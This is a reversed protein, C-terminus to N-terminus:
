LLPRLQMKLPNETQNGQWCSVAKVTTIIGLSFTVNSTFILISYFSFFLPHETSKTVSVVSTYSNSIQNSSMGKDIEDVQSIVFWWLPASFTITLKNDHRTTAAASWIM